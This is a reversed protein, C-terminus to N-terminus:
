NDPNIGGAGTIDGVLYILEMPGNRLEVEYKQATGVFLSRSQLPTPIWTVLGTADIAFNPDGDSLAMRVIPDTDVVSTKKSITFIIDTFSLPVGADDLIRFSFPDTSGRWLTFPYKGPVLM